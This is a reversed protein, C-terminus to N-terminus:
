VPNRIWQGMIRPWHEKGNLFLYSGDISQGLSLDAKKKTESLHTINPVAITVGTIYEAPVVCLQPILKRNKDLKGYKHGQMVLRSQVHARTFEKYMPVDKNPDDPKKKKKQAFALRGQRRRKPRVEKPKNTDPEDQEEEVEKREKLCYNVGSKLLHGILYYGKGNIQIGDKDIRKVKNDEIEIICLIHMATEPHLHRFADGSLRVLAWDHWGYGRHKHNADMPDSKFLYEKGACTRFLRHYIKVPDTHRIMPLLTSSM